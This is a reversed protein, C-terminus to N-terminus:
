AASILSHAFCVVTAKELFHTGIQVTQRRVPFLFKNYVVKCSQSGVQAESKAPVARNRWEGGGVGGWGGESIFIQWPVVQVESKALVTQRRRTAGGGGGAELQFSFKKTSLKSKWGSSWIQCPCNAGGGGMREWFDSFLSLSKMKLQITPRPSEAM